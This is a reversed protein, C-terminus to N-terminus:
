KETLTLIGWKQPSSYLKEKLGFVSTGTRKKDQLNYHNLAVDFGIHKGARPVYGKQLVDWPIVCELIYGKNSIKSKIKLPAGVIYDTIKMFDGKRERKIRIALPEKSKVGLPTLMFQHDNFDYMQAKENGTDVFLEVCDRAWSSSITNPGIPTFDGDVDIRLYLNKKDWATYTRTTIDDAKDVVPQVNEWGKLTGDLAPAIPVLTAKRYPYLDLELTYRKEEVSNKIVAELVVNEVKEVNKTFGLTGTINRISRAPLKISGPNNIGELKAGAPVKWEIRYENEKDSRNELTLNIKTKDKGFVAKVPDFSAIIANNRKEIRRQEIRKAAGASEHEQYTLCFFMLRYASDPKSLEIKNEKKIWSRKLPIEMRWQVRPKTGQEKQAESWFVQIERGNFKMKVGKAFLLDQAYMGFSLMVTEDDAPLRKVALPVEMAEVYGAASVSSYFQTVKYEKGTKQVPEQLDWLVSAVGGAPVKLVVEEAAQLKKEGHVLKEDKYYAFRKTVGAVVGISGARLVVEQEQESRNLVCSFVQNASPASSFVRVDSDDAATNFVMRGRAQSLVWYLWYVDSLFIEDTKMNVDLINYKMVRNSRPYILLFYEMMAFKDPNELAMFLLQSTYDFRKWQPLNNDLYGNIETIAARPRVSRFKEGQAQLMQVWSLQSQDGVGYCQYNYIEFPYKSKKLLTQTWYRWDSWSFFASSALCPGMLKTDKYNKRVFEDLSNWMTLWTKVSKRKSSFQGSFWSYNPENTMQVFDPNVKGYKKIAAIYAAYYNNLGELNDAAMGDLQSHFILNKTLGWEHFQETQKFQAWRRFNGANYGHEMAVNMDQKLFVEAQKKAEERSVPKGGYQQAAWPTYPYKKDKPFTREPWFYARASNLNLARIQEVAKGRSEGNVCGGFIPQVQSYGNVSLTKGADIEIKEQAHIVSVGIVMACIMWRWM